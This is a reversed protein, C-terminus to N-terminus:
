YRKQYEVAMGVSMLTSVLVRLGSKWRGDREDESECCLSPAPKAQGETQM